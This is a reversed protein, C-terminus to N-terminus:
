RRVRSNSSQGTAIWHVVAAKRFRIARRGVRLVGPLRNEAVLVYISKPKMRLIGALDDVTLLELDATAAMM